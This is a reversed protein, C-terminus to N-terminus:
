RSSAPSPPAPATTSPTPNDRPELLVSDDDKLWGDITGANKGVTYQITFHSTDSADPQGSLIRLPGDGAPLQVSGVGDFCQRPLTMVSGGALSRLALEARISVADRQVGVLDVAVLRESGNKVRRGHLFVTGLSIIRTGAQSSANLWEMPQLFVPKSGLPASSYDARNSLLLQEPPDETYAVPPATYTLCASFLGSAHLRQLGTMALKITLPLLPLLLIAIVTWRTRRQRHWPTTEEYDLQPKEHWM